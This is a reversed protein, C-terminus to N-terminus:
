PSIMWWKIISCPFAWQTSDESESIMSDHMCPTEVIFTMFTTNDAPASSIDSDQTEVGSYSSSEFTFLEKFHFYVCYSIWRCLHLVSWSLLFNTLISFSRKIHSNANVTPPWSIKEHLSQSISSLHQQFREEILQFLLAKSANFQHYWIVVHSYMFIHCSRKLTCCTLEAM